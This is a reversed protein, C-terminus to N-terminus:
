DIGPGTIEVTADYTCLDWQQQTLSSSDIISRYILMVWSNPVVGPRYLQETRRISINLSLLQWHM